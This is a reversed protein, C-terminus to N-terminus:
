YADTPWGDRRFRTQFDEGTSLFLLRRLAYRGNGQPAAISLVAIKTCTAAADQRQKAIRPLQESHLM